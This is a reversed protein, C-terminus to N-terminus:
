ADAERVNNKLSNLEVKRILMRGEMKRQLRRLAQLKHSVNGPRSLGTVLFPQQAQQNSASLTIRWSLLQPSYNLKCAAITRALHFIVGLNLEFFHSSLMM